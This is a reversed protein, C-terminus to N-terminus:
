PHYGTRMALDTGVLQFLEQWFAGTFKCDKDSVITKPLVHLRFVERFFLKAVHTASYYSSIAFFHTFKTLIDVVVYLYYRGQVMPLGTIFDM